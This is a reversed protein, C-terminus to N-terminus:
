SARILTLRALRVNHFPACIAVGSGHTEASGPRSINSDHGRGVPPRRASGFPLALRAFRPIADGLAEHYLALYVIATTLPAEHNMEVFRM